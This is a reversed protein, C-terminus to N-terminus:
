LRCPLVKHNLIQRHTQINNPTFSFSLSRYAGKCQMGQRFLGKLLKKCYQCITPRTYNHIVFTHPVKVRGLVMKEMWIPRGSWSPIRKSPELLPRQKPFVFCFMFVTWELIANIFHKSKSQIIFFLMHNHKIKNNILSKMSIAWLLGNLSNCM